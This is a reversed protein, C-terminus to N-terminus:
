FNIYIINVRFLLLVSFAVKSGGTTMRNVFWFCCSVVWSTELFWSSPRNRYRALYPIWSDRRRYTQRLRRREDQNVSTRLKKGSCSVFAPSSGLSLPTYSLDFTFFKILDSIEDPSFSYILLKAPRGSNHSLFSFFFHFTGSIIKKKCFSFTSTEVVYKIFKCNAGVFKYQLVKPGEISKSPTKKSISQIQNRKRIVQYKKALNIMEM